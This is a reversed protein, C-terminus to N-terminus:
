KNTYINEEKKNYGSPAVPLTYGVRATAMIRHPYPKQLRLIHLQIIKTQEIEIM